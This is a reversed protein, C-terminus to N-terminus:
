EVEEASALTTKLFAFLKEPSARYTGSEVFIDTLHEYGPIKVMSCDDIFEELKSIADYKVEGRSASVEFSLGNGRAKISLTTHFFNKFDFAAELLPIRQILERAKAKSKELAEKRLESNEKKEGSDPPTPKEPRAFEALFDHYASEKFDMEQIIDGVVQKQLAPV